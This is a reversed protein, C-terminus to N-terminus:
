VQHGVFLVRLGEGLFDFGASSLTLILLIIQSVGSQFKSWSTSGSCSFKFKSSALLSGFGSICKKLKGIPCDNVWLLVPAIGLAIFREASSLRATWFLELWDRKQSPISKGTGSIEFDVFWWGSM